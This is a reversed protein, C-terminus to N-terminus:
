NFQMSFNVSFIIFYSWLWGEGNGIKEKCSIYSHFLNGNMFNDQALMFWFSSYFLELHAHFLAELSKQFIILYGPNFFRGAIKM